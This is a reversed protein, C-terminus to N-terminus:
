QGGEIANGRGNDAQIDRKVTKPSVGLRRAIDTPHTNQALLALVNERRSQIIEQKTRNAKTLSPEPLVGNAARRATRKESRLTKLEAQLAAKKAEADTLKQTLAALETTLKGRRARLDTLSAILEGRRTESKIQAMLLEFALFLALPPVAAMIRALPARPAHAVNFLISGATAIVVLAWPYWAREQYLNARLVALSFVIIAGDIVLPWLWTLAPKVGNEGALSRLAEYSLVFAATALFFVLGGTLASIRRYPKTHQM